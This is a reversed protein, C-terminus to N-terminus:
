TCSCTCLRLFSSRSIRRLLSLVIKAELMTFNQGICIRPGWGFPYFSVQGKTAKAIGELSGKPKFEKADNGRIDGDQHLLLIPMTVDVGAPLSSTELNWTRRLTRNFYIVPPYLRPVEYPIMTMTKLLSLGDFNPNQKGFVHLVEERARAQWEPYKSLMILTWVLLSSTTEQGALYFLKCESIVEEITMGVSKSNGNGQIEMQNSELLIGLLDENSSEGNKLAKERKEIIVRISNKMGKDVARLKMKAPTPIHGQIRLLEFIKEGEAYSSGFATRSIVDRTLNQLFPWVDIECKGDSSLMRMWASIVDHCSQSFKPLMNLGCVLFKAISSMKPKQFDHINNFVEKIHNPDTIIVKPTTGEWLFSNKGYKAVTNHAQTFIRPAVDDSLVFSESHPTDQPPQNQNSSPRSLSYPDGHLGQARLLKEFRKPRFWLSNLTRVAWVPVVAIIVTLVCLIATSSSSLSLEM